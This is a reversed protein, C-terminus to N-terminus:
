SDLQALLEAQHRQQLADTFLELREGNMVNEIGHETVGVRHDTVRGQLCSARHFKAVVLVAYVESHMFEDAAAYLAAYLGPRCPYLGDVVSCVYKLYVIDNYTCLTVAICVRGHSANCVQPYNYTRIRESRDGSGIQNRRQASM